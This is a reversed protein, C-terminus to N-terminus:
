NGSLVVRFGFDDYNQNPPSTGRYASRCSQANYHWSGGRLVRETGSAAGTPDTAPGADYAGYRDNCWEWANGHLDYVGWANAAKQRSPHTAGTANGCYWGALDLNPDLPSCGINTIAGSSFATTAGARCAYEWEAETPLRYGAAGYPDGDNCSWTAHDYARPLGQQLSLWDCYAAAGYWTVFGTPHDPRTCQFTGNSFTMDRLQGLQRLYVGSGDLHDSIFSSTATIYGNDYAWQALDTYQQNTVEGLQLYFGRTLTVTHVVEDGNENRGPEDAPSGMSFQGSNVYAFQDPSVAFENYIGAFTVTDAAALTQTSTAPAFWGTVAGWTVTYEGVDLDLLTSDGADALIFGGPGTLQWPADIGDPQADIVISGVSPPAVVPDDDGGCGIVALGIVLMSAFLRLHRTMPSVAKRLYGAASQSGSADPEWFCVIGIPYRHRDDM